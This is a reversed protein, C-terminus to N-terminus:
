PSQTQFWDDLTAQIVYQIDDMFQSDLKDLTDETTHWYSPFGEAFHILDVSPVGEQIFPVHDDYVSRITNTFADPLRAKGNKWLMQQLEPASDLSRAELPFKANADGVMDLLLMADPAHILTRAYYMSGALPHCDEFGDEGDFFVITIDGLPEYDRMLSLLVGVGSAGDNAGLVAGGGHADEKSEWHAGLLIETDSNPDDYQAVINTFQLSAVQNKDAEGCSAQWSSLSSDGADLQQYDAGSFEQRSATWGPVNAAEELWMKASHHGSTGPARYRPEGNEYTVLGAAFEYAQGKTVGEDAPSVCGSFVLLALM